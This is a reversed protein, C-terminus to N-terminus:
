FYAARRRARLRFEPLWPVPHRCCASVAGHL